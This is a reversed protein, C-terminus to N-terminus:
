FLSSVGSEAEGGGTMNFSFEQSTTTGGETSQSMPSNNGFLSGLGFTTQPSGETLFSHTSFSINPTNPPFHSPTNSVSPTSFSFFDSASGTEPQPSLSPVTVPPNIDPSMWLGLQAHASSRQPERTVAASLNSEGVREQEQRHSPMTAVSNAQFMPRSEYSFNIPSDTNFRRISEHTKQCMASDTVEIEMPTSQQSPVVMLNTPTGCQEIHTLCSQQESEILEDSQCSDTVTMTQSQELSDDNNNNNEVNLLSSVTHQDERSTILNVVLREAPSTLKPVVIQSAASPATSASTNADTRVSLSQLQPIFLRFSSALMRTSHPSVPQTDARSRADTSFGQSQTLIQDLGNATKHQSEITMKDLEEINCQQLTETQQKAQLDKQKQHLVRQVAMMESVISSTECRVKAIHIVWQNLPLLSETAKIKTSLEEEEKSLMDVEEEYEKTSEKCKKVEQALKSSEYKLQYQMWLEEYKIVHGQLECKRTETKRKEEALVKEMGAVQDHFISCTKKLSECTEKNHRFQKHLRRIEVDKNSMEDEKQKIEGEKEVILKETEEFAKKEMELQLALQRIEFELASFNKEFETPKRAEIRQTGFLAM